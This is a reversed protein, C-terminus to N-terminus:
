RTSTKAPTLRPSSASASSTWAPSTDAPWRKPGAPPPKTTLTSPLISESFSTVEQGRVEEDVYAALLRAALRSYQPETGILEAATQISLKDLEATTAGDYLGSITRTAVRLPDVEDLDTAWRAVATVIRNVDVPETDGDRKRVRMAPRRPQAGDVDSPPSQATSTM